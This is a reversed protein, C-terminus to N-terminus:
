KKVYANLGVILDAGDVKVGTNANGKTSAYVLSKGSTSTEADKKNPLKAKIVLFRDKGETTLEFTIGDM